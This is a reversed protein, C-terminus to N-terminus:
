RHGLRQAAGPGGTLDTFQCIGCARCGLGRGREADLHTGDRVAQHEEGIVRRDQHQRAPGMPDVRTEQRLAEPNRRHAPGVRILYAGCRALRDAADGGHAM